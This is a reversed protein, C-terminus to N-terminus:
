SRSRSTGGRAGVVKAGDVGDQAMLFSEIEAPEVLFGRLRLADGARCRYHFAGAATTSGLDGSSFWGDEDVPM